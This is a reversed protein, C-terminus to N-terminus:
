MFGPRVQTVASTELRTFLGGCVADEEEDRELPASVEVTRAARSARLM